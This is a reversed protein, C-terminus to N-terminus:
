LPGTRSRRSLAGVRLLAVRPAEAAPAAVEVAAVVAAVRRQQRELLALAAWGLGFVGVLPLGLWEFTEEDIALGPYFHSVVTYGVIGFALTVTFWGIARRCRAAHRTGESMALVKCMAFGYIASTVVMGATFAIGAGLAATPGGHASAALGWAAAQVVSDLMLAFVVGTALVVAPHGADRLRRPLLGAKFSVPKFPAADTRLLAHLNLGGVLLLLAVPAWMVLGATTASMPLNQGLLGVVVAIATVVAGHGAAFIPGVWPALAPRRERVSFTMGDITAVHEPDLAHRMGFAAMAVLGTYAVLEGHAM